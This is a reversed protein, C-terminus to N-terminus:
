VILIFPIMFVFIHVSIGIAFRIWIGVNVTIPRADGLSLLTYWYM